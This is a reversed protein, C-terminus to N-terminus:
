ERMAVAVEGRRTEDAQVGAFAEEYRNLTLYYPLAPLRELRARLDPDTSTLFLQFEDAMFIFTMRACNNLFYSLYKVRENVVRLSNSGSTHKAPLCPIIVGPWRRVLVERLASFESYRREVTLQSPSRLKIVYGVYASLGHGRPVGEVV